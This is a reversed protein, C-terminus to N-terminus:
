PQRNPARAITHFEHVDDFPRIDKIEHDQGNLEIVAETDVGDVPYTRFVVRRETQEGDGALFERGGPYSVKAWPRAIEVRGVVPAGAGDREGTEELRVFRVRTDFEGPDM